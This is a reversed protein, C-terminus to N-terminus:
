CTKSRVFQKKNGGTSRSSPSRKLISSLRMSRMSKNALFQARNAMIDQGTKVNDNSSSDALEDRLLGCIDDMSPRDLPSTEWAKRLVQQTSFGWKRPITPRVKGEAIKSQFERRTKLQPFSPKLALIEWVLIAYSFVDCKENYPKGLVIEPAMYPFSGTRATLLYFGDKDYLDPHMSKALGFDFM